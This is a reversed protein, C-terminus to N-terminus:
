MNGTSLMSTLAVMFSLPYKPPFYRWKFVFQVASDAPHTSSVAPAARLCKTDNKLQKKFLHHGYTEIINTDSPIRERQSFELSTIHM